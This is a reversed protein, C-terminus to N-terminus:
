GSDSEPVLSDPGGGMPNAEHTPMESVDGPGDVGPVSGAPTQDSDGPQEPMRSSVQAPDSGLLTEGSLASPQEMTGEPEPSPALADREEQFKARLEPLLNNGAGMIMNKMFDRVVYYSPKRCEAHVWWGFKITKTFGGGLQNKGRVGQHACRCFVTPKAVMGELTAQSALMGVMLMDQGSAEDEVKDRQKVFEEAVQDDDFTLVVVRAGV